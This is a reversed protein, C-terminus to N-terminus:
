AAAPEDATAPPDGERLEKLRFYALTLAVAVFPVLVANTVASGLVRAVETSLGILALIGSVVASVVLLILFLLVILGFVQWASGRVLDISRSLAEGLDARELVVVPIAAILWTLAILGPVILLVFGIAVIVGVVLGVVVVQWLRDQSARFTEELTLDVRGDRVDAVATVLAGWVLATGVVSIVVSLLAGITGLQVALLTLVAVAVFVILAITILHRWYESYLRWAGSITEVPSM